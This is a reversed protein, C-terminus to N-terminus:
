RYIDIFIDRDMEMNYDCDSPAAVRVDYRKRMKEHYINTYAIRPAYM